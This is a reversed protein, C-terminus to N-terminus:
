RHLPKERAMLSPRGACCISRTSGRRGSASQSPARKSRWSRCRLVEFGAIVAAAQAVSASADSGLCPFLQEVGAPERTALAVAPPPEDATLRPNQGLRQSLVARRNEPIPVGASNTPYQKGNRDKVLERAHRPRHPAFLDGCPLKSFLWLFNRGRPSPLLKTYTKVLVPSKGPRILANLPHEGNGGSSKVKKSSFSDLILAKLSHEGDCRGTSLAKHSTVETGDGRRLMSREVQGNFPSQSM